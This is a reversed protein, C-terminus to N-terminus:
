LPLRVPMRSERVARPKHDTQTRAYRLAARRDSFYGGGRGHTEVAVWHGDQDQGVVFRSPDTTVPSLEQAM